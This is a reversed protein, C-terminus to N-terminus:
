QADREPTAQERTRRRNNAIHLAGGVVIFVFGPAWMVAGATRPTNDLVSESPDDPNYHALVTSGEPYEGLMSEITERSRSTPTAMSFRTGVHREGNVVYEYRVRPEYSAGGRRATDSLVEAHIVRAETSPWASTREATFHNVIAIAVIAVGIVILVSPMAATVVSQSPKSRM